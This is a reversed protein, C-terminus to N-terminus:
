SDLTFVPKGTEPDFPVSNHEHVIQWRGESRRYVATTRLWTQAADNDAGMGTFRLLSHALALDGSVVVHQDRTEMGFSGPFHRLSEEWIQRWADAGKTQFPPRVNFVIVDPAYFSMIRDVDKACIASQQDAILQRIQAEDRAQFTETTM